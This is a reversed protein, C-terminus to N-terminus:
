SKEGTSASAMSAAIDQSWSFSLKFESDSSSTVGAAASCTASSTVDAASAGAAASGDAVSAVSEGGAAGAAM